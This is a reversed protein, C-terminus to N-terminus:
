RLLHARILCKQRGIRLKEFFDPCRGSSV